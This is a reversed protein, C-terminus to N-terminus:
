PCRSSPRGPARRPSPPASGSARPAPATCTPPSRAPRTRPRRRVRPLLVPVRVLQVAPVAQPPLRRARVGARDRELDSAGQARAPPHVTRQSGHHDGSSRVPLAAAGPESPARPTARVPVRLLARWGPPVTRLAADPGPGVQLRHRRARRRRRARTPRHHRPADPGDLEVEMRLELGIPQVQTPDEIEFYRRVLVDADAVLAAAADDDLALEVWEPDDLM